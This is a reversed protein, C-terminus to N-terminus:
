SSSPGRRPITGTAPDPDYGTIRAHAMIRPLLPRIENANQARWKDQGPPTLANIPNALLETLKAELAPENPIGIHEYVRALTASPDSLLEELSLETWQEPPVLSQAADLGASTQQWQALAIEPVPATKL